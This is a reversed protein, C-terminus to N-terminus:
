GCGWIGKEEGDENGDDDEVEVEVEVEAVEVVGEAGGGVLSSLM